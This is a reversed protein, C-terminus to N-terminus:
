QTWPCRYKSKKFSMKENEIEVKGCGIKSFGERLSTVQDRFIDDYVVLDDIYIIIGQYLLGSFLRNHSRQFSNFSNHM